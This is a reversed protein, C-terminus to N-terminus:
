DGRSYVGGARLVHQLESPTRKVDINCFYHFFLERQYANQNRAQIPEWKAYRNRSWTEGRGFAYIKREGTVCRLGEHNVTRAGSPSVIQVTYRVVGDDSPIIAANDIAFQNSTLGSVVFPVWNGEKPPAPLVAEIENWPKDAEFDNDFDAYAVGATLLLALAFVRPM